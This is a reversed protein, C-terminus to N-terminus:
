SEDGESSSGAQLEAVAAGVSARAAASDNADLEAHLVRLEIVTQEVLALVTISEALPQRDQDFIVSHFERSTTAGAIPEISVENREVRFDDTGSTLTSAGCSDVGREAHLWFSYASTADAFTLRRQDAMAGAASLWRSHDVAVPAVSVSPRDTGACLTATPAPEPQVPIWEGLNPLLAAGASAVADAEAAVDALAIAGPISTSEVSNTVTSSTTETEVEDVSRAVGSAESPIASESSVASPVDDAGCGNAAFAAVALVVFFMSSRFRVSLSPRSM